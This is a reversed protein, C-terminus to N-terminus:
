ASPPPRRPLLVRFTTRGPQSEVTLEGHHDMVVIQYSLNLGQGTGAGPPKTTFFADFVQGRAEPPIGPGNDTVEVVVDDGDTQTALTIQPDPTAAETLAYAANDLLNTWVQNLEGGSAVIEGVDDGYRRVVTIERLKHGLLAVTDDLGQHIDVSALPARDLYAHAKLRGVIESVRRSGEAVDRALRRPVALHVLLTVATVAQPPTLGATVTELLPIELGSDVLESAVRWAEHFRRDDLWAEVAEEADSRELADSIGPAAVSAADTIRQLTAPDLDIGTTIVAALDDLAGALREAARQAGAAPNNLEHAVGATLTGLQAMRDTQRLRENTERLRGLVIGLVARAAAPSTALLADFVSRPITLLETATKARVSAIRPQSELLAMEGIVDGSGRLALLTERKGTAKVIEVEGGVVIYATDGPDGEAFLMEGPALRQEEVGQCIRVLDDDSLEAFLRVNRLRQDM